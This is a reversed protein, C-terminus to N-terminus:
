FRSLLSNSASKHVAKVCLESLKLTSFIRRLIITKVYLLSIIRVLRRNETAGFGQGPEVKKEVNETTKFATLVVSM